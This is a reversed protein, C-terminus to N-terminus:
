GLTSHVSANKPYQRALNRLLVEAEHFQGDQLLKKAQDVSVESGFVASSLLPCFVVVVAFFLWAAAWNRRIRM